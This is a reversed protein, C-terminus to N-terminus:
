RHTLNLRRIENEFFRKVQNPTIEERVFEISYDKIDGPYCLQSLFLKQSFLGKFKKRAGSIIGKLSIGAEMCFYLDIYDRWEGRRGITYAKDLAIDKWSYIGLTPNQVIKYIPPFPFFFFSIKVGPPTVISLEDLTDVLIQIKGFHERVKLLFRHPIPKSTFLDFDYSRRHGLRLALETGGGLIAYKSFPRLSEFTKKQALTLLNSHFRSM